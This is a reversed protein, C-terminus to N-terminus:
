IIDDTVITNYWVNLSKYVTIKKQKQQLFIGM